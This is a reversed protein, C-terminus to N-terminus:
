LISVLLPIVEHVKYLYFPIFYMALVFVFFIIALIILFRTIRESTGFVIPFPGIVVVGGGEVKGSGSSKIMLYIISIFIIAIGAFVLIFGLTYLDLGGVNNM